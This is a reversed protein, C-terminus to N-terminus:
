EVPELLKSRDVPVNSRWDAFAMVSRDGNNEVLEMERALGTQPDFSITVQTFLSRAGETRPVFTYRLEDDATPRAVVDYDGLASADLNGSVISTVSQIAAALGASELAAEAREGSGPEVSGAHAGDVYFVRREPEDYIWCYFDPKEIVITGATQLTEDFLSLTKTQTFRGELSRIGAQAAVVRALGEDREVQTAAARSPLAAVVALSFLIWLAIPPQM